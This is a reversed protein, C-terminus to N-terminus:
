VRYRYSHGSVREIDPPYANRKQAAYAAAHDGQSAPSWTLFLARRPEPTRNEASRHPAHGDFWVVDGAATEHADFRLSSVRAAPLPEWLAGLLGERHAGRALELCGNAVTMPDICVMATIFTNAYSLWGAQVDQHPEFGATGPLKYNLKEKFLVVPEGVLKAASQMLWPATSFACLGAHHALFGEVRSLLPAGRVVSQDDSYHAVGGVVPPRARLEDAWARLDDVTEAPVAGPWHLVGDRRYREVAEAHLPSM